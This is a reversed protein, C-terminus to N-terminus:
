VSGERHLHSCAPYVVRMSIKGVPTPCVKIQQIKNMFIRSATISATNQNHRFKPACVRRFIPLPAKKWAHLRASFSFDEELPIKTWHNMSSQIHRSDVFRTDYHFRENGTTRGTHFRRHFIRWFGVGAFAVSFAQITFQVMQSTQEWKFLTDDGFEVFEGNKSEADAIESCFTEELTLKWFATCMRRFESHQSQAKLCPFEVNQIIPLEEAIWVNERVNEVVTMNRADNKAFRRSNTGYYLRSRKMPIRGTKKESRNKWDSMTVSDQELISAKM